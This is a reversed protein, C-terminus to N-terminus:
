VSRNRLRSNRTKKKRKVNIKGRETKTPQRQNIFKNVYFGNISKKVWEYNKLKAELNGEIGIVLAGIDLFMGKEYSGIKISYYEKDKLKLHKKLINKCFAELMGANNADELRENKFPILIKKTHKTTFTIEGKKNIREKAKGITKSPIPVVTIRKAKVGYQKKLEALKKKDKPKFLRVDKLDGQKDIARYDNLLNFYRSIMWKDRRNLKKRLDIKFDIYPKIKKYADNYSLQKNKAM